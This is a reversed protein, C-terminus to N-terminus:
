DAIGKIFLTMANAAEDDTLGQTQTLSQWAGFDLAHGLAARRLRSEDGWGVDLVAAWGALMQAWRAMEAAVAPMEIDRYVNVLLQHNRRYYGYTASLATRLRAEPDAIPVWQSADPPPDLEFAHATCAAFIAAHDAFHRYVTLRQVGAREAIASVTTGIPGVTSHLEFAAEALLRHTEAQKDARARLQYARPKKEKLSRM